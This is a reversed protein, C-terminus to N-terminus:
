PNSILEVQLPNAFAQYGEQAKSVEQDPPGYLTVRRLSLDFSDMRFEKGKMPDTIPLPQDIRPGSVGYAFADGSCQKWTPSSEDSYFSTMVLNQITTATSHYIYLTGQKGTLMEWQLPGTPVSDPKGDVTAGGELLNNYYKMGLAQASYDYVDMIGPIAHVRVTTLIEHRDLYFFDDRQTAYGSNAGLYSRIARVPGDINAIFAGGGQDFTDESRDCVGPAFMVKHRDLLNPGPKGDLVLQLGDELWRVSFHVQDFATRVTSDEPNAGKAFKYSAPYAGSKLKFQYDINPQGGSPSLSGDSQFIYVYVATQSDPASIKLLAAPKDLAGSPRGASAAALDGAEGAIFVLEDDEDFAPNEDAGVLTNADAYALIQLGMVKDQRILGVDILKRQDVQLPIQEWGGRYRFAALRDVAAGLLAPLDKGTRVVPDARHLGLPSAPYLDQSAQALTAAPAPSATPSAALPAASPSAATTLAPTPSAPTQTSGVSTKEPTPTYGPNCGTLFCFVLILLIHLIPHPTKM